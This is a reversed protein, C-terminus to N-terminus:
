HSPYYYPPWQMSAPETDWSALSNLCPRAGLFWTRGKQILRCLLATGPGAETTPLQTGGKHLVTARAWPPTAM